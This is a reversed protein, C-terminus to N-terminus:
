KDRDYARKDRNWLEIFFGNSVDVVERNLGGKYQIPGNPNQETMLKWKFCVFQNEMFLGAKWQTKWDDIYFNIQAIPRKVSFLAPAILGTEIAM